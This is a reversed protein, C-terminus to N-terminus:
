LLYRAGLNNDWVMVKLTARILVASEFVPTNNTNRRVRTGGSIVM